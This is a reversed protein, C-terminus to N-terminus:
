IKTEVDSEFHRADLCRTELTANLHDVEEIQFYEPIGDQWIDVAFINGVQPRELFVTQRLGPDHSDTDVWQYPYGRSDGRRHRVSLALALAGVIVFVVALVVWTM